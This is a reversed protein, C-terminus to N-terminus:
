QEDGGNLSVQMSKNAIVVYGTTYTRGDTECDFRLLFSFLRFFLVRLRSPTWDRVLQSLLGLVSGFRHGQPSVRELVLGAQQVLRALGHHTFRWFDNPADVPHLFPTSLFVQGGSDVVRALESVAIDPAPVYELVELCVVTDFTGDRFPLKLVTAQVDPQCALSMDLYLWGDCHKVPPKFSGRRGAHGAGIELVKGRM